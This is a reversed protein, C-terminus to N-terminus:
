CADQGQAAKVDHVSGMVHDKTRMGRHQTMELM